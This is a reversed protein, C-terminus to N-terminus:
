LSQHEMLKRRAKRKISRITTSDVHSTPRCPKRRGESHSLPGNTYPRYRFGEIIKTEDQYVVKHYMLRPVYLSFFRCVVTASKWSKQPQYPVQYANITQRQRTIQRTHCTGQKQVVKSPPINQCHDQSTQHNTKTTGKQRTANRKHIHM